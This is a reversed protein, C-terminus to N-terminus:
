SRHSYDPHLYSPEFLLPPADSHRLAHRFATEAFFSRLFVCLAGIRQTAIWTVIWDPSDGMLLAIRCGKGHGAVLLAHAIDASRRNLEALDIDRDDTRVAIAEPRSNVLDRWWGAVTPEDVNDFPQDSSCVDSNGDSIRM